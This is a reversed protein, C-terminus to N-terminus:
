TSSILFSKKEKRLLSVCFNRQKNYNRKNEETCNKKFINRLRSRKMIAQQLTKNMFPAQNARISRKKNPARRNLVSLITDIFIDLRSIEINGKTLENLLEARFDDNSFNKYDRYTVIKAEQKKFYIKMVTVVM